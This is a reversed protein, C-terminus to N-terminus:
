PLSVKAPSLYTPWPYSRETAVFRMPPHIVPTGEGPPGAADVRVHDGGTAALDPGPDPRRGPGSRHGRGAVLAADVADVFESREAITIPTGLDRFGAVPTAVTPRGAAVCEYAKIPDLSETFPSVLHPVIVVEAHQLYGPVEGYPRPGLLHINAEAELSESVAAPLSDPGVLVVQLGPRARALEVVLPVDIREEHLTGVYLAVPSDPLSAPRAQPTRFLDLDVGNPILEVTRDRGRTLELDKSCVVVADSRRLLLEDDAQLRARARPPLPALLWDDTVDYLTPWGSDVAFSAYSADNVWVLPQDLGLDDVARLVQRRLSRDAYPGISRPLWKRPRLVHIRPHVQELRRRILDHTEGRRLQHPVDIAPTVYLVHLAPDLAVMEDVLIRMRRRVDTWPELSCVVLSVGGSGQESTMETREGSIQTPM